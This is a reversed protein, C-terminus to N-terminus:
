SANKKRFNILQQHSKSTLVIHGILLFLSYVEFSIIVSGSGIGFSEQKPFLQCIEFMGLTFILTTVIVGMKPLFINGAISILYLTLTILVSNELLIGNQQCKILGYAIFVSGVWITWNFKKLRISESESDLVEETM